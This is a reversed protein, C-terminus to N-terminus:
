RRAARHRRSRCSRPAGPSCTAPGPTAAPPARRPRRGAADPLGEVPVVVVPQDREEVPEVVQDEEVGAGADQVAGVLAQQLLGVLQHEDEAGPEVPTAGRGQGEVPHTLVAEVVQHGPRDDDDVAQALLRVRRCSRMRRCKSFRHWCTSVTGHSGARSAPAWVSRDPRRRCVRSSRTWIAAATASLKLSCPSWRHLGGGAADQGSGGPCEDQHEPGLHHGREGVGPLAPLSDVQGGRCVGRLGGGVDGVPGEVDRRRPMPAHTRVGGGQRRRGAVVAAAVRDRELDDVGAPGPLELHVIGGNRPRAAFVAPTRRERHLDDDHPAWSTVALLRANDVFAAHRSQSM